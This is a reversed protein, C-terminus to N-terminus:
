PASDEPLPPIPMWHSPEVILSADYLAVPDRTEWHGGSHNSLFVVSKSTLPQRGCALVLVGPEPLKETVPIWRPSGYSAYAVGEQIGIEQLVSDWLQRAMPMPLDGAPMAWKEAWRDFSPLANM